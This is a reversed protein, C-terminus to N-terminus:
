IVLVLSTVQLSCSFIVHSFTTKLVFRLFPPFHSSRFVSPFVVFMQLKLCVDRVVNVKITSMIIIFDVTEHKSVVLQSHSFEPLVHVGCKLSSPLM